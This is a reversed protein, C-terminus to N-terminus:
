IRTNGNPSISFEEVKVYTGLRFTGDRFHVSDAMSELEKRAGEATQAAGICTIDGDNGQPEVREAIILFNFM